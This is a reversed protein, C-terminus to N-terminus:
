VGGVMGGGSRWKTRLKWCFYSWLWWIPEMKTINSVDHPLSVFADGHFIVNLILCQKNGFKTCHVTQTVWIGIIQVFPCISSFFHYFFELFSTSMLAPFCSNLFFPFDLSGLMEWTVTHFDCSIFHDAETNHLLTDTSVQTVSSPPFLPRAWIAWWRGYSLPILPCKNM